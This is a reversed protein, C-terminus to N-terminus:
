DQWRSKLAAMFVEDQLLREYWSAQSTIYGDAKSCGAADTNGCSLDFDWVPGMFFCDRPADYYIFCSAQFRSDHNKTFENVLYWDVLSDLNFYRTWDGKTEGFLYKERENVFDKIAFFEDWSYEVGDTDVINFLVGHESTFSLRENIHEDIKFLISGDAPSIDVREPAIEIKEQLGYLGAYKGNLILTVFKQSPTWAFRNWVKHALFFAYEDRLFSKDTASSKLVWRRAKGLGLLAEENDLKLLYPKKNTDITNWTSNGRGRIKCAGSWHSDGYDLSYVADLYDKKSKIQKGYTNVNLIPLGLNKYDQERIGSYFAAFAFFASSALALLLTLLGIPSHRRIRM